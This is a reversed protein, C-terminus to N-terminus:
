FAGLFLTPRVRFQQPVGDSVIAAGSVRAVLGGRQSPRYIMSLLQYILPIQQVIFSIFILTLNIVNHIKVYKKFKMKFNPLIRSKQFFIINTFHANTRLYYTLYTSRFYTYAVSSPKWLAIRIHLGSWAVLPQLKSVKKWKECMQTSLLSSLGCRSL